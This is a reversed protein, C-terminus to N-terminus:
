MDRNQFLNFGVMEIVVVNIVNTVPVIKKLIISTPLLNKSLVIKILPITAIYSRAVEPLVSSM